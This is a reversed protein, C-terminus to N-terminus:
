HYSQHNRHIDGSHPLRTSEVPRRKFQDPLFMPVLLSSRGRLQNSKISSYHNDARIPRSHPLIKLHNELAQYSMRTCEAYKWQDPPSQTQFQQRDSLVGRRVPRGFLNSSSSQYKSTMQEEERRSKARRNQFWYQLPSFCLFFFTLFVNLTVNKQFTTLIHQFVHLPKCLNKYLQLM